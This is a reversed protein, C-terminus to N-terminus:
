KLEEFNMIITETAESVDYDDTYVFNKNSLKEKQVHQKLNKHKVYNERKEIYIRRIFANWAIQTFYGFANNSKNPNFSPVARVCAEIGDLILEDKYTYGNFNPRTALNTCLKKICIGIENSMKINPNTKLKEQYDKILEVFDQNNLYKTKKM